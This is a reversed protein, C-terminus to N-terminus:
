DWFFIRMQLGTEALWNTKVWKSRFTFRFINLSVANLMWLFSAQFISPFIFPFQYEKGLLTRRNLDRFFACWLFVIFLFFAVPFPFDSLLSFFYDTFWFYVVVEEEKRRSCVGRAWRHLARNYRRRGHTYM